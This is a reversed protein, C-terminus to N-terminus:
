TENSVEVPLDLLQRIEMRFQLMKTEIADTDYYRIQMNGRDVYRLETQLAALVGWRAILENVWLLIKMKKVLRYILFDYIELIYINFYEVIEFHGDRLAISIDRM